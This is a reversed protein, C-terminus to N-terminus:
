SDMLFLVELILLHPTAIPTGYLDHHSGVSAYHTCTTPIMNFLRKKGEKATLISPNKHKWCLVIINLKLYIHLLSTFFLASM